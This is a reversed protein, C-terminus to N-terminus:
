PLHHSSSRSGLVSPDCSCCKECEGTDLVVILFQPLAPQWFVTRGHPRLVHEANWVVTMLLGEDAGEMLSGIDVSGEAVCGAREMKHCFREIREIDHASTLGVLRPWRVSDPQHYHSEHSPLTPRRLPWSSLIRLPYLSCTCAALIEDVHIMM